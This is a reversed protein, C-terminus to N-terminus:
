QQRHSHHPIVRPKFVVADVQSGDFTVQIRREIRVVRREETHLQLRREEVLPNCIENM